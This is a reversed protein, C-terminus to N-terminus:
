SWGRAHAISRLRDAVRAGLATPSLRARVDDRGRAGLAAAFDRDTALRRMCEAAHELRPEAWTAGKAYPGVDHELEILDHEVLLSTGPTMFELNGSYGTAIAPRGLAMAEALTLGFGESRHLSVYADCSQMLGLLEARPMVGELLQVGADAAAARIRRAEAPAFDPRALKIVLAARDTHAFARRFAEILGLPNKREAHSAMDFVFLFAFDDSRLGLRARDFPEVRPALDLAPPMRVVPVPLARALADQIFESAAWVEDLPEAHEIWRSPLQALEWFWVGISHRGQFWLPGVQEAFVPTQDANMHILNIAYPAHRSFAHAPADTNTSGPDPFNCLAVPVGAAELARLQARLAEGVGKESEAYGALNVGFLPRAPAPTAAPLADSRLWDRVRRLPRRLGPAMSALARAAPLLGREIRLRAAPLSMRVRPREIAPLLAADLGLERPGKRHLWSLFAGAHAGSPDPFAAILDRDSAHIALALRSCGGRVPRTLWDRFSGRRGVEFPDGFRRVADGREFYLRRAVDPIRCGDAFRGFAYDARRAQVHGDAVLERRYREFLPRLQPFDRLTSRDHHRSVQEIRDVDFGSFHFLRVPSDGARLETGVCHLARESMNWYAVNWGADRLVLASEFYIPALDMWKQDVHMGRAPDMLCGRYLRKKWWALLRDTEAGERLALFGLNYVGAQLIELESPRCDDDIPALVHPTLIPSRERLLMWLPEFPQLVLMDPDLFVLDCAGERALLWELFYPKIATALELVSYQFFFRAREPIGDLSEVLVTEFPESEPDLITPDVRDLLLVVVRADPEHELFSRALVRAYALYSNSVITCAVRPRPSAGGM